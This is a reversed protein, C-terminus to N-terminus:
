TSVSKEPYAWLYDEGDCKIWRWSKVLSGNPGAFIPILQSLYWSVDFELEEPGLFAEDTEERFIYRPEPSFALEWGVESPATAFSCSVSVTDENMLSLAIFPENRKRQLLTTQFENWLAGSANQIDTKEGRDSADDDHYYLWHGWQSAFILSTITELDCAKDIVVELQFSFTIHMNNLCIQVLYGNGIGSSRDCM